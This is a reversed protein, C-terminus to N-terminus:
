RAVEDFRAGCGECHSFDPPSIRGCAVCQRHVGGTNEPVVRGSGQHVGFESFSSGLVASFGDRPRIGERVRVKGAAADEVDVLPWLRKLLTENGLETALRVALGWKVAATALDGQEFADWGARVARGLDGQVTYREVKQDIQSSLVVDETVYGLIPVPEGDMRTSNAVEAVSVRGLQLDEGMPKGGLDVELCVLYERSEDGWSGVSLELTNRGVEVCRGTLDAETPHVQKVFRLKAFPPMTLLLRLDPVTKGMATEIMREFHAPLEADTVVADATGRLVEAIRRLEDPNWDDGIGRADCVFHGECENLVLTVQEASEAENLGDTLLIAHRVADPHQDLLQKALALWTSMATRSSAVLRSVLVKAEARTKPNAPVLAAQKPYVMTAVETGEVVGFWVGDRLADIAAATAKKAAILKTPAWGMSESCDVLLVEAAEAPAGGSATIILVAVMLRDSTSMYKKQHLELRFGPRDDM